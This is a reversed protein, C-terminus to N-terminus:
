HGEMLPAGYRAQQEELITSRIGKSKPLSILAKDAKGICFVNSVRTAFVHGHADKLQVIDFSGKHKEKHVIVGVRGNNHGGTVMALNGVDFKVFDRIKGNEIDFM